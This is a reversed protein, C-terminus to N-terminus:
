FQKWGVRQLRVGLALALALLYNTLAVSETSCPLRSDASSVEQVCM